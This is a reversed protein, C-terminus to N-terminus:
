TQAPLHKQALRAVSLPQPGLTCYVGPECNYASGCTTAWNGGAFGPPPGRIRVVEGLGAGQQVNRAILEHGLTAPCLFSGGISTKDLCRSSLMMIPSSMTTVMTSIRPSLTRSPMSAGLSMGTCRWSTYSAM